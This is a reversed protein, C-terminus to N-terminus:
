KLFCENLNKCVESSRNSPFILPSNESLFANEKMLIKKASENAEHEYPNEDYQKESYKKFNIGDLLFQKGHVLEHVILFKLNHIILERDHKSSYLKSFIANFKNSIAEKYFILEGSLNEKSNNIEHYQALTYPKYYGSSDIAVNKILFAFDYNILNLENKVKEFFSGSELKELEKKITSTDVSFYKIAM